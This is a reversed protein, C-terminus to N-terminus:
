RGWSVTKGACVRLFRRSPSCNCLFHETILFRELGMAEALRISPLNDEYVQYRPVLGRGLLENLAAAVVRRALGRRRHSTITHVGAIEWVTGYNPFCFCTSVPDGQEYVTAAFTGRVFYDAVEEGSYGNAAYLPLCRADLRDTICVDATSPLNSIQEVPRIGTYSIYATKRQLAFESSMVAQAPSDILKFVLDCDTPIYELLAKAARQDTVTPLVVYKTTPYTKADFPSAQTELLLLVGESLGDAFHWGQIAGPYAALMKLHVIHRLVDRQLFQTVLENM